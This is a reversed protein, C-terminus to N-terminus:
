KGSFRHSKAIRKEMFQLINRARKNIDFLEARQRAAEAMNACWVPDDRLSTIAARIQGVDLPDLRISMDESLLEDNFDGDSSIVPLGCAMAEVIANCSGEILTPLVFVDAASLFYPIEDHPLRRSFLVNEGEPPVPGSGAFIGGVGELGEIAQGVRVPGKKYLYNGVCAVLFRNLPLGYRKRATVKERPRFAHLDAGNPFVGVSRPDVELTETLIRKLRASNALFGSVKAFDERAQEPGFRRVTGFEGEGVCPFAPINLRDGIRAAAAGALYLFHGYIAEPTLSECTITRETARTFGALTLLSPNLPGFFRYSDRSGVSVFRPRFVQVKMGKRTRHVSRYPFTNKSIVIEHIPVPSVVTCRVNHGSIGKVLQKVFARTMPQARTPYGGTVYLVHDLLIDSSWM